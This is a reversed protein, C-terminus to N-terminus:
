VRSSRTELPPREAQDNPTIDVDIGWYGVRTARMKRGELTLGGLKRTVRVIRGKRYIAGGRTRLVRMLRVRRGKWWAECNSKYEAAPRWASCPAPACSGGRTESEIPKPESMNETGAMSTDPTLPEAKANPPVVRMDKERSVALWAGPDPLYLAVEGDRLNKKVVAESTSWELIDDMKLKRNNLADKASALIARELTAMSM